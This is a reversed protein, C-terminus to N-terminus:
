LGLARRLVSEEGDDEGGAPGTFAPATQEFLYGHQETLLEVAQEPSLSPDLEKLIGEAASVSRVAKAKLHATTVEKKVAQLIKEIQEEELPMGEFFTKDM